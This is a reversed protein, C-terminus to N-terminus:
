EIDCVGATCAYEQSGTTNDEHEYAPLISWDLEKKESEILQEYTDRSIAQYPAQRYVHHSKPLFSLGSVLHFNDYIWSGVKLWEGEEVYITCSPKHHCWNEAYVKWLDLQQIASIETATIADKPTTRAFSFVWHSDKTVDQECQVGQDIMFQSIPDKKDGRITRIYHRSFRPHIGPSCDVLQSVTGSPKVCTIATSPNVSIAEAFERNTEVSTKQLQRLWQSLQGPCEEVQGSFVEHDMIGTLSVGLLREEECNSTWVKSLFNFDTLSSQMTGIITAVRVKEQVDEFSDGERIVVESLNCFQRDRLLIESCPNTGFEHEINRSTNRELHKKAAHRSFIGREGNKSEMLSLWEQLFISEDPKETYAVSNNAYARYPQQDEKWWDGKKADRMKSDNLDSLSILASRRVGGVVVVDAIKCCLDHVEISHLKRGCAGRFMEVCFRFLEDLPEPGSARGGFTKLRAGAPRVQSLDWKPIQGNYLLGILEKFSRCWGDKSDAVHLVTDTQFIEESVEPLAEIFKSEVSYGVGTGCLLCHMLESFKFVKDIALYACNYAATHDRALAPGATMLARMSPMVELCLISSTITNYLTDSLKWGRQEGLERFFSIYREVTEPWNERRQEIDRWRAYRSKHIFTQYDDM